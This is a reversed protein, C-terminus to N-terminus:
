RKLRGAKVGHERSGRAVATSLGRARRLHAAVDELLRVDEPPLGVVAAQLRRVPHSLPVPRERDPGDGLLDTLQVDLAKALAELTGLAPERSGDEIRSVFSPAVSARAGLAHQTLGRDHRLRAIRRGIEVGLSDVM